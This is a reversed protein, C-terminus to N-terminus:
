AWAAGLVLLGTYRGVSPREHAEDSALSPRGTGRKLALSALLGRLEAWPRGVRRSLPCLAGVARAYRRSPYGEAEEGVGRVLAM